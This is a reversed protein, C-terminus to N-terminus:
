KHAEQKFVKDSTHFSGKIKNTKTNFQITGNTWDHDSLRAEPRKKVATYFEWWGNGLRKATVSSVEHILWGSRLKNKLAKKYKYGAYYEMPFVCRCTMWSPGIALAAVSVVIWVIGIIWINEIM